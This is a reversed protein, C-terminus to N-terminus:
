SVNLVSRGVYDTGDWTLLIRDEASAGTTLTPATGGAWKVSAPWTITRSGTGDQVVIIELLTGVSPPATIAATVSETLTTTRLPNTSFDFTINGGASTDAVPATQVTTSDTCLGLAVLQAILSELASATNRPGVVNPQAVPTAGFFGLSGDDEIEIAATGNGIITDGDAGAGANTGAAVVLDGAKLTASNNSQGLVSLTEGAVDAVAAQSIAPATAAAGFTIDGTTNITQTGFDPAIKTGAIAAADDVNADLILQWAIGEGGTMVGYPIVSGFSPGYEAGNFYLITGTSPSAVGAALPVGLLSAADGGGLPAGTARQYAVVRWVGAGESVVVAMDDAATVVNAATPLIIAANHTLTAAGSFRLLRVAGAAATGFSTVTGTGTVHVFAGSAGAINTTGASAVDAGKTLTADAHAVATALALMTISLESATKGGAVGTASRGYVQNAALSPGSGGGNDIAYQTRNLLAQFAAEFNAETADDGTTLTLGPTLESVPTLTKAM